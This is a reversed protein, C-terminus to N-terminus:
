SSRMKSSSETQTSVELTPSRRECMRTFTGPCKKEIGNMVKLEAGRRDRQAGFIILRESEAGGRGKDEAKNMFFMFVGWEEEMTALTARRNGTIYGVCDRPVEVVSCDDRDEWNEVFVPGELQAFLWKM